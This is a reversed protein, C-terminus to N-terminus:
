IEAPMLEHECYHCRLISQGDDHRFTHFRSAMPENRTICKPNPCTVLGVIEAPLTVPQKHVVEYERIINIVASPAVLAIRNIEESVFEKDAVKIIGKSGIHSSPLNNGITLAGPITTLGLMDVIKFVARPPIHDIVTGNRLAAVALEKKM